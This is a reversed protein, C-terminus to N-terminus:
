KVCNPENLVHQTSDLLILEMEKDIQRAYSAVNQSDPNIPMQPTKNKKQKGVVLSM